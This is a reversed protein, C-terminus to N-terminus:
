IYMTDLIHRMIVNEQKTNNTFLEFGKELDEQTIKRLCEKQKGYIRKSHAIKSYFFLLEMDRGFHKFKQKNKSFWKENEKNDMLIDWGSQKVKLFFIQQLEKHSYDDIKFRWIFRSELGRNAGFFYTNLEEEYGAIIVMLDDKRDSLAECLTDICEKSYSDNENSNALSYAEDIFLVGGSCDDLVQKTKLATQGLYGAVLDHRTVKRFVNNKLIGIKSYMRGINKAIETKGTGPPGYIVTHKFEGGNNGIHLGQIFYLLQEVISAKLKEMGIMEDLDELEDRINHLIKLDINYEVGECYPNEEIIHLLDKINKINVDITVTEKIKCIDSVTPLITELNVESVCHNLTPTVCLTKKNIFPINKIRRCYKPFRTGSFYKHGYENENCDQNSLVWLENHDIIQKKKYRDLYDIFERSNTQNILM